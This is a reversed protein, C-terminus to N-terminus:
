DFPPRPGRITAESCADDGEGRPAVPPSFTMPVSASFRAKVAPDIFGTMELILGGRLTVVNLAGLQFDPGQYCAFALQGNARMPVLRWPTEFIRREFFRAIAERGQFWTPIPPMTFRADQALLAVIADVDSRAWASVFSAVLARAGEDGLDRLTAQQTKEPLLEALTKRARQLASNVSPVTTALVLAADAAGFGLVECLILTARQTAPLHQLAAVFALEVSELAEYTASPDDPYPELWLREGLIPAALDTGDSPPAYDRASIRKPRQAVVRFCAHTAIKYLWPRLGSRDEFGEFGRWAGFLTEQLADDADHLSGLLRYCYAHLEARYPAVRAEFEAPVVPVSM